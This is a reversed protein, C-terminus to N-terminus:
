ILMTSYKYIYITEPQKSKPTRPPPQTKPIANLQLFFRPRTHANYTHRVPQRAQKYPKETTNQAIFFASPRVAYFDSLRLYFCIIKIFINCNYLLKYLQKM